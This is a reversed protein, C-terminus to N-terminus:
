SASHENLTDVIKRNHVGASKATEIEEILARLRDMKIRASDDSALAQLAAAADGGLKTMVCRSQCEFM